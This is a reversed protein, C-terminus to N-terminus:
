HQLFMENIWCEGDNRVAIPLPHHKKPDKPYFEVSWDYKKPQPPCFHGVAPNDLDLHDFPPHLKVFTRAYDAAQKAEALYAPLIGDYCEGAYQARGSKSNLDMSASQRPQKKASKKGDRIAGGPTSSIPPNSALYGNYGKYFPDQVEVDNLVGLGVCGEYIAPYGHITPEMKEPAGLVLYTARGAERQEMAVHKGLNEIAREYASKIEASPTSIQTPQPHHFVLTAAVGCGFAVFMLLFIRTKM